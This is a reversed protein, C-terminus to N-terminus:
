GTLVYLLFQPWKETWFHPPTDSEHALFRNYRRIELSGLWFTPNGNRTQSLRILVTVENDGQAARCSM